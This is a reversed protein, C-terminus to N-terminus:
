MSSNALNGNAFCVPQDPPATSAASETPPMSEEVIEDIHRPAGRDTCGRLWKHELTQALEEEFIPALGILSVLAWYCEGGDEFAAPVLQEVLWLDFELGFAQHAGLSQYARAM